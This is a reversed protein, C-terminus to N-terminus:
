LAGGGGGRGVFKVVDRLLQKHDSRLIHNAESLTLCKAELTDKDQIPGWSLESEDKAQAIFWQCKSGGFGPLSTLRDLTSVIGTEETFERAAAGEINKLEDGEIGGKPLEWSPQGRRLQCTIVVREPQRPPGVLMIVGAASRGYKGKGKPQQKGMKMGGEHGDHWHYWGHSYGGDHVPEEQYWDHSHGGDHVPEEGQSRGLTPTKNAEEVLKLGGPTPPLAFSNGSDSAAMRNSLAALEELLADKGDAKRLQLSDLKEGAAIKQELQEIGRLKKKLKLLEKQEPSLASAM